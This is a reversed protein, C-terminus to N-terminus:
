VGDAAGGQLQERRAAVRASTAEFIAGLLLATNLEALAAAKYRRALASARADLSLCVACAPRGDRGVAHPRFDVLEVRQCSPCLM